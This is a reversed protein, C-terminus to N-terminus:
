LKTKIRFNIMSNIKIKKSGLDMTFADFFTSRRKRGKPANCEVQPKKIESQNSTAGIESTEEQIKQLDGFIDREALHVRKVHAKSDKEEDFDTVKVATISENQKVPTVNSLISQDLSMRSMRKLHLESRNEMGLSMRSPTEAMSDTSFDHCKRAPMLDSWSERRKPTGADADAAAKNKFHCVDVFKAFSEESTARPTSFTMSGPTELGTCNATQELTMNSVSNISPVFAVRVVASDHLRKTDLPEKMSRFDYSIVDGKLNGAVCFTGCSSVCVTSMPHSQKHQQVVSRKRLDFVNINCDYGCSVFLDQSSAYMSIDRIPADHAKKDIFLKKKTQIDLMTIEGEYSGVALAFQRTPHFRVLTPRHSLLVISNKKNM